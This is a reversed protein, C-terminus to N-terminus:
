VSVFVSIWLIALIRIGGHDTANGGTHSALSKQGQLSIDEVRPKIHDIAAALADM